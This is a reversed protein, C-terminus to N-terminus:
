GDFHTRGGVADNVDSIVTTRPAGVTGAIEDKEQPYVIGGAQRVPPFNDDGAGPNVIERIETDDTPQRWPRWWFLAIAGITLVV